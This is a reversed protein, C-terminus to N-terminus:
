AQKTGKFYEIAFAIIAGLIMGSILGILTNLFIDPNNENILPEFKVIKYFNESGKGLENTKEQLVEASANILRDIVDRDTGTISVNITAPEERVAKFAKSLKKQPVNPVEVGAKQYIEQVLSPSEFWTAVIQSFLAASQVNYFNDFLYFPVDAQKFSSSKNVTFTTSAIYTKPQTKTIAFAALGGLITIIIFVAFYKGIIRIYDRLEM